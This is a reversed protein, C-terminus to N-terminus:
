ELLTILGEVLNDLFSERYTILLKIIREKPIALSYVKHSSKKDSIVIGDDILKNLHWTVTSPSLNMERCIEQHSCGEHTLIFLLIIRVSRQRLLALLREDNIDFTIPYYRVHNGDRAERILNYKALYSLHYSVLGFSMGSARQIERM